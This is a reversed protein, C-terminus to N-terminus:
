QNEGIFKKFDQMFTIFQEFTWTFDEEEKERNTLDFFAVGESKSIIIGLHGHDVQYQIEQENELTLSDNILQDAEEISWTHSSIQFLAKENEELSDYEVGWFGEQGYPKTTFKYNKM